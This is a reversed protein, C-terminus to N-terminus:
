DFPNEEVQPIGEGVCIDDDCIESCCENDSSCQAGFLNCNSEDIALNEQEDKADGVCIDDDCIESCCESDSRCQAMFPNCNLEDIALNEQEDKVDDFPTEEVRSIAAANNDDKGCIGKECIHSCCEIKRECQAGFFNCIPEDIALNEQEDKDGDFPNEEVQPIGGVCIDDDCVESCCESNSRCQDGFPNCNSEDIALNEQEDKADGFTNEEVRPITAAENSDEMRTNGELNREKSM